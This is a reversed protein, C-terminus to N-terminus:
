FLTTKSCFCCIHWLDGVTQEVMRLARGAKRKLRRMRRMDMPCVCATAMAGLVAGGIMGFLLGNRM